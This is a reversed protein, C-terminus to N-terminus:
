PDCPVGGGRRHTRSPAWMVVGRIVASPTWIPPPGAVCWFSFHYSHVFRVLHPNASQKSTRLRRRLSYGQYLAFCEVLTSGFGGLSHLECGSGHMRPTRVVCVFRSPLTNCHRTTACCYLACTQHARVPTRLMKRDADLLFPHLGCRRHCFFCHGICGQTPLGVLCGVARQFLRLCSFPM